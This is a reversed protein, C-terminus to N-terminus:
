SFTRLLTTHYKLQFNKTINARVAKIPELRISDIIKGLRTVRLSGSISVEGGNIVVNIKFKERFLLFHQKWQNKIKGENHVVNIKFKEQFLLYNNVVNINSKAESTSSM